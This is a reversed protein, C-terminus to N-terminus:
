VHKCLQDNMFRLIYDLLADFRRFKSTVDKELLRIASRLCRDSLNWYEAQHHHYENYYDLFVPCCELAISKFHEYEEDYEEMNKTALLRLLADAIEGRYQM